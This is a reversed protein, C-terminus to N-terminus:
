TALRCNAHEIKLSLSNGAHLPEPMSFGPMGSMQQAAAAAAAYAYAIHM